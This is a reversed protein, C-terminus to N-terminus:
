TDSVVESHGEKISAQWHRRSGQDSWGHSRRARCHHRKSLIRFPGVYKPSLKQNSDPLSSSSIAPELDAGKELLLKAMAEHGNSAALSLPTNGNKNKSELDAGKELLLKAVVEHGNSAAMSLPMSGDIDKSDLNAGKELLRKAIAEHGNTAAWSLPTQGGM